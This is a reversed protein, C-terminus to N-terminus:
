HASKRDLRWGWSTQLDRAREANGSRRVLKVLAALTAQFDAPARADLLHRLAQGLQREARPLDGARSALFARCRCLQGAVMSPVPGSSSFEAEVDDLLTELNALSAARAETLAPALISIASLRVRLYSRRTRTTKEVAPAVILAEVTDRVATASDNWGTLHAQARVCLLSARLWGIRRQQRRGWSTSPARVSRIGDLLALGEDAQIVADAYEAEAIALSGAQVSLEARALRGAKRIASAERIASRAATGNGMNRHASVLHALYRVRDAPRTAARLERTLALLAAAPDNAIEDPIELFRRENPSWGM